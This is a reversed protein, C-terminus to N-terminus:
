EVIKVQPIPRSLHLPSTNTSWLQQFRWGHNRAGNEDRNWYRACHTCQRLGHIRNLLPNCKTSHKNIEKEIEENSLGKQKQRKRIDDLKKNWKKSEKKPLVNRKFENMPQCSHNKNRESLKNTCTKLPSNKRNNGKSKNETKPSCFTKTTPDYASCMQTSMFEDVMVVRRSKALLKTLRGVPTAQTGRMSKNFEANGMVIISTDKQTHPILKEVLQADFRQKKQQSKFREYAMNRSGDFLYMDNWCQTVYLLHQLCENPNTTKPSLISLQQQHNQVRKGLAEVKLRRERKKRNATNGIAEYYHKNSLDWFKEWDKKAENWIVIYYISTSGPDIALIRQFPHNNQNPSSATPYISSQQYIGYNHAYLDTGHKWCKPKDSNSLIPIRYKAQQDVISKGEKLWKAEREQKKKEFEEVKKEEMECKIIVKKEWNMHVQIGDSMFTPGLVREQKKTKFEYEIHQENFIQRLSQLASLNTPSSHLEKLALLDFRVFRRGLKSIPIIPFSKNSKEDTEINIAHNVELTSQFISYHFQLLKWIDTSKDGCQEKLRTQEFVQREPTFLDEVKEEESDKKDEVYIPDDSEETNSDNNPPIIIDDDGEDENMCKPANEPWNELVFAKAEKKSIKYTACLYMQYHSKLGIWQHQLFSTRYQISAYKILQSKGKCSPFISPLDPHLIIRQYMSEVSPSSSSSFSDNVKSSNSSLKRKKKAPQDKDDIEITTKEEVVEQKIQQKKEAREKREMQKRKKTEKQQQKSSFLVSVEDYLQKEDLEFTISTPNKRKLEHYWWVCQNFKMDVHMNVKTADCLPVKFLHEFDQNTFTPIEYPPIFTSSHTLTTSLAALIRTLHFLYFRSAYSTIRSMPEITQEILECWEPKLAGGGTIEEKQDIIMIKNRQKKHKVPEYKGRLSMPIVQVKMREFEVSVTKKEEEKLSINRKKKISKKKRLTEKNQATPEHNTVEKSSKQQIKRKNNM